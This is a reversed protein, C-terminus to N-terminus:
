RLLHAGEVGSQQRFAKLESHLAFLTTVIETHRERGFARVASLMRVISAVSGRRFNVTQIAIIQQERINAHLLGKDSAELLPEVVACMFEWIESCSMLLLSNGHM